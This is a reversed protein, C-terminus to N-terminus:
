RPKMLIETLAKKKKLSARSRVKKKLAEKAKDRQKFMLAKKAEKENQFTKTGKKLSLDLKQRQENTDGAFTRNPVKEKKVKPGKPKKVCRKVRLTRDHLQFEEGNKFVKQASEATGFNVYGFGKGIGTKADRIIRVDRIQGYGEFLTRLEEEEAKFPLNGVFLARKRDREESVPTSALETPSCDTKGGPHRLARDVRLHLGKFVSGNAQLAKDVDEASVFRVYANLSKRDEHFKRTIAAVRKTTKPTAVPVSRFRVCEVPGYKKFFKILAAQKVDVSLNGVFVTRSEKEPDRKQESATSTRDRRPRFMKKGDEEDDDDSITKSLRVNKRRPSEEEGTSSHRVGPMKRRVPDVVKKKKKPPSIDSVEETEELVVPGSRQEVNRKQKLPKAGVPVEAPFGADVEEITVRSNSFLSNLCSTKKSQKKASNGGASSLLAAISGVSYENM